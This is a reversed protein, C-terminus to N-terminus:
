PKNIKVAKGRVKEIIAPTQQNDTPLESDGTNQNSKTNEVQVVTGSVKTSNGRVKAMRVLTSNPKPSPSPTPTPKPTPKPTPTPKVTTEGTNNNNNPPPTNSNVKTEVWCPYSGINNSNYDIWMYGGEGWLSGWSNKILWANKSDDWGIITVGHNIEFNAKENFVGKTYSLFAPTVTVAVVLPGHESIAKKIQQVSPIPTWFDIYGWKEVVQGTNVTPNSCSKEANVYPLVTENPLQRGQMWKLTNGYWGGYCSGSDACDLLYQESLDIKSAPSIKNRYIYNAEIAAISSFAWCSGCTRQDRIPTIIGLDRLDLKKQTASGFLAITSGISPTSTKLQINQNLRKNQDQADQRWNSPARMNSYQDMKREMAQTFGLEFTWKETKAKTRLQHLQEKVEANGRVERQRYIEDQNTQGYLVPAFLLLVLCLCTLTITSNMTNIKM